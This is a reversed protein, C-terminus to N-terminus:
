IPFPVHLPTRLSLLLTRFGKREMWAQAKARKPSVTPPNATNVLKFVNCPSLPITFDRLQSYKLFLRPSIYASHTNSLGTRSLDALSFSKKIERSHSATTVKHLEWSSTTALTVMRQDICNFAFIQNLNTEIHESKM